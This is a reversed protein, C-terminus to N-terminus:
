ENAAAVAQAAAEDLLSLIAEIEEQTSAAYLRTVADDLLRRVSFWAPFTEPESQGIAALELATEYIPNGALYDQLLPVTTSQTPLYGSAEIWKAQNEPSTLFKVFLWSAMEREPTSRMIGVTQTFADVGQQGNPGPFALFGWEDKSGARAFAEEYFPLGSTSSLTVLALRNAQEPNPFRATEFSCGGDRLDNIFAAVERVEPTNFSYGDGSENLISGGWAYLFSLFNSAGPFWVMGGKGDNNPNADSASAGAAGCVQEKLEQPTTPPSTFGLEHAWTYNYVMVNASQSFPWGVREGTATLGTQLVSPYLAGKEEESLGVGPHDIFQNLDAIQNLQDWAMLASTYAQVIDPTVGSQIAANVKNELTTYQGQDVAEVTAGYPNAANFDAVIQNLAASRPDRRGYIHWFQVTVGTLDPTPQPTPTETPTPTPTLTPSATPTDTAPAETATAPEGTTIDAEPPAAPPACASLLIVLALLVLALRKTTKGSM